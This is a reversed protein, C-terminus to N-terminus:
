ENLSQMKNQVSYDPIMLHSQVQSSQSVFPVRYRAKLIWFYICLVLDAKFWPSFYLLCPLPAGSSQSNVPKPALFGAQTRLQAMQGAWCSCIKINYVLHFLDTVLSLYQITEGIYTEQITLYLLSKTIILSEAEAENSPFIGKILQM